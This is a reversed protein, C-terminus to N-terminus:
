RKHQQILIDRFALLYADCPMEPNANFTYEHLYSFEVTDEDEYSFLIGFTEWSSVTEM